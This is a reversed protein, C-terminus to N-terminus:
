ATFRARVTQRRESLLGVTRLIRLYGTWHFIEAHRLLRFWAGVARGCASSHLVLDQSTIRVLILVKCVYGARTLM